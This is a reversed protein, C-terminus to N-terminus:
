KILIIKKTEAYDGATLKYYYVGSPYNSANWVIEYTGPNLNENILVAIEKGLTNYIIVRVGSGEGQPSPLLPLDFKIKTVPNFPNPYNQYLKFSSPIENSIPNIATIGGTTTHIITGTWGAAWGTNEDIFNVAWLNQTTPSVQSAWNTGGNTTYIVTGSYGVAWGTNSNAFSLAVIRNTTGSTQTIWNIGGNSTFLMAGNIGGAWGTQINTFYVGFLWNSGTGGLEIWNEGGNATKLVTGATGTGGSIYGVLSAGSIPFHMCSLTYAAGSQKQVWNSGGDTTKYITGTSGSFYGTNADTFVISYIFSGFSSTQTTWNAGSNTTKRITGNQGAAWGTNLDIFYITYL